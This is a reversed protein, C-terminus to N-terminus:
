GLWHARWLAETMAVISLVASVLAAVAALRGPGHRNLMASLAIALLPLVVLFYRGQLGHIRDATTPTLTVFFIIFVACCYALAAALALVAVRARAAGALGLAGVFCPALLLSIVPYAWARMPVDLWGFVGILQRWLEPTYDLSRISM